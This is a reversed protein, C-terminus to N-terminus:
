LKEQGMTKATKQARRQLGSPCTFLGNMEEHVAETWLSILLSSIRRLDVIPASNGGSDGCRQM